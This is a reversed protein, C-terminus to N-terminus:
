GVGPERSRLRYFDEIFPVKTVITGTIISERHEYLLGVHCKIVQVIDAPVDAPTEGYGAVYTVTLTAPAAHPQINGNNYRLLEANGYREISYSSADVPQGNLAVSSVSVVPGRPLSLLEGGHFTATITRHLLSSAMVQEAHATAAAILGALYADESDSDIRLHQKIADVDILADPQTQTWHM